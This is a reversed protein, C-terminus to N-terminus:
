KVSVMPSSGEVPAAVPAKTGRVRLTKSKAAHEDALDLVAYQGRAQNGWPDPLIVEGPVVRTVAGVDKCFFLGWVCDLVRANANVGEIQTYPVFALNVRQEMAMMAPRTRLKGEVEDIKALKEVIAVRAARKSRAETELKLVELEIRVAQDERVAVEPMTPANSTGALSQAGLVAQQMGLGVQVQSRDNELLALEVQHLAYLERAYDSKSVLNAEHNKRTEETIQTQKTLMSALVARQEKLKKVEAGGAVVQHANVNKTWAAINAANGQLTKLRAVAKDCAGIDSDIASIEADIRAREVAIESMKLKAQLVIDSDPSLIVPAVFSDTLARYGQNAVTGVVAAFGALTVMSFLRTRASSKNEM